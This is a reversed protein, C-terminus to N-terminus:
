YTPQALSGEGITKLPLSNPMKLGILKGIDFREVKPENDACGKFMHLIGHQDLFTPVYVPGLEIRAYM